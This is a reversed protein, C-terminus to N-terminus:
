HELSFLMLSCTQVPIERKIEHFGEDENWFTTPVISWYEGWLGRTRGWSSALYTKM